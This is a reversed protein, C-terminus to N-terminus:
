KFRITAAGSILAANVWNYLTKQRVFFNYGRGSICLIRYMHVLFMLDVCFIGEIKMTRSNTTANFLEYDYFSYFLIYM